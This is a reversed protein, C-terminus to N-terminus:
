GANVNVDCGDFAALYVKTSGHPDLRLPGSQPQASGFALDRGDGADRLVFDCQRYNNFNQVQVVVTRGNPVTFAETDGTGAKRAFPLAVQGATAHHDVLCGPDNRDWRFRGTDHVQFTKTGYLGKFVTPVGSGLNVVTVTCGNDGAAIADRISLRWPSTETFENTASGGGDGSSGDQHAILLAAATGAAALIVTAGGLYVLRRRWSRVSRTGRVLEHEPSIDETTDAPRDGAPPLAGGAADDYRPESLSPRPEPVTDADAADTDEPTATSAPEPAQSAAKLPGGTPPDTTAAEGTPPTPEATSSQPDASAPVGIPASSQPTDATQATQLVTAAAAAVMRSDDDALRDLAAKAALALGAHRGGLRRALEQVAGVRVAALPHDIVEQLEAPLPAPVTVPHSRRALYLEGQMEVDRSPTQQPNQERVRDFVYDYLENLSVWGDQDRDADGTALGEVLASTFVSPRSHDDALQDGEFAYETASSATIVARGRGLRGGPFSDLVNVDGAARVTVGQSFAGGYCCDLFLVISRSRSARICRQVFDAPVATSGLRNPRTNRAAFYLEGSDSKLGHCSFHLLVVDDSRSDALLDEIRGQIVHASENRVVHVDFGGIGPDGLVGALAQADAAPARLRGLGEHEYVDNAVILAERRAEM